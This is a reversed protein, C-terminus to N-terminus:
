TTQDSKPEGQKESLFIKITKGDDQIDFEVDFKFNEWKVLARGEGTRTHDIVEIRNVTPLTVM